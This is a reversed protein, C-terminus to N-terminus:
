VEKQTSLTGIRQHSIIINRYIIFDNKISKMTQKKLSYYKNKLGIIRGRKIVEHSNKMKEHGIIEM